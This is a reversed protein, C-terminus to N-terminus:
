VEDSKNELLIVLDDKTSNNDYSLKAEDAAKKLETKSKSSWSVDATPDISLKYVEIDKMISPQSEIWEYEKQIELAKFKKLSAEWKKGSAIQNKEYEM